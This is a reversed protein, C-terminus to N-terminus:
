PTAIRVGVIEGEPFASRVRNYTPLSKLDIGDQPKSIEDLVLLLTIEGAGEEGFLWLLAPAKPRTGTSTPFVAAEGSEVLLHRERLWSLEYGLWCCLMTVAVFVTRLSFRFWRRIPSPM